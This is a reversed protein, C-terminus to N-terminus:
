SKRRRGGDQNALSSASTVNFTFSAHLKGRGGQSTFCINVTCSVSLSVVLEDLLCWICACFILKDHFILFYLSCISVFFCLVYVEFKLNKSKKIDGWFKYFDLKSELQM